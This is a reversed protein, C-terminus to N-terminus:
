PTWHLTCFSELLDAGLHMWSNIVRNTSVQTRTLLGQGEHELAYHMAAIVLSRYIGQGRAKESVANLADQWYGGLAPHTPADMTLFGLAEGAKEAVLVVGQDLEQKHVSNRFWELFLDNAHEHDISPELYFRDKIAETDSFAERALTEMGAVEEVRIPRVTFGNEFALLKANLVKFSDSAASVIQRLKRASAGLTLLVDVTRFGCAELGRMLFLDASSVKIDAFQVGNKCLLEVADKALIRDNETWDGDLARPSSIPYLRACKMGLLKSDWELDEVVLAALHDTEPKASILVEDNRSEWQEVFYKALRGDSETGLVQKWPLTSHKEVLSIFEERQTASFSSLKESAM